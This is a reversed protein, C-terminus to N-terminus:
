QLEPKAQKTGKLYSLVLVNPYTTSSTQEFCGNPMRLLSELGEVAQSFVGPYIKVFLSSAGAIAEPPITVSKTVNADLRANTTDRLERGEPLVEIERRVADSLKTGRATVTLTHRGIAEVRIPFSVGAVENPGLRVSAAGAGRAAPGEGPLATFWDGPELTLSVTQDEPLYNYLAVPVAIEDGRTLSVPLDLDVFFDQFVRLPAQASGLRGGADGAMVTLRWTTISDALPITVRAKGQADTIVSPNWFLTEPFY